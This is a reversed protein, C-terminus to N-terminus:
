EGFARKLLKDQELRHAAASGTAPSASEPRCIGTFRVACKEPRCYRSLLYRWVGMNEPEEQVWVRPAGKPYISLAADLEKRPFPYLQEIRVVAVDSRGLREREKDLEYYLKGSCLLVRRIGSKDERADPLVRRFRGDALEDLGSVAKPHRLLSKPTMLVLPKRWKRVAQRRLIHFYQAPTSPNAVQINDEACLSLFRELRASAHEPGTGELGHPLLLVLGSLREWKREASCLFQDVIGQAMNNFDGFQAEWAVLASPCDLSYGYEFGLVGFESLPSNRIEVPAQGPSLHEIPSHPRGSEQDYLIAHRQSFTGRPTDQGTMRVRHGDVSLSGLALAEAAAWDLPREGRSMTERTSLFRRIKPHPKFGEPLRTLKLLLDSLRDRAVATDAEPADSEPGGFYGKWVGQLPELRRIPAGSKAVSLEDELKKRQEAAIGDAEERKLGGLKLLHDLYGEFVSKRGAITRYLKPHTFAPEDTENHGHRRYCYMDIVVDSKFTKRFDMALELAQAVAEPDEGNVHFIPAQLMKAVDTSYSSSTGEEPTTTFGIRNNVVVHLTGGISYGKLQSLNLTEQVVGQGAMAADGHVAILLGGERDSDGFRDQAARVRGMAVPNVVELHSPNFCLSLRMERGSGTKWISNYGLHYKVDGGGEYREPENDEFERFIERASKGIINCLVNLRGRHAMAIVTGEVGQDVAKEIAMDLLPILSEAGELSFRKAGLYRKQIFEEFIVADSLRKLIRVQAEKPLAVRNNTREMRERLWLRVKLDDIHMFQAGISGCYTSRVRTLVQRVTLRGGGALTGAQTPRDMDREAIGYFSPKLEETPAEPEGLPNVRAFRHGRVRHAHILEHVREQLLAAELEPSAKDSRRGRPKLRAYPDDLFSPKLKPDSAFGEDAPLKSFYERWEPSVSKPDKLYRVYAEEAYFLSYSHFPEKSDGM